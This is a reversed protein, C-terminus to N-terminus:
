GDPEEVVQTEAGISQRAALRRFLHGHTATMLLPTLTSRQLTFVLAATGLVLGAFLDGTTQTHLSGCAALASVIGVLAVGSSLLIAAPAARTGVGVCGTAFILVALILAHHALRIDSRAAAPTEGKPTGRSTATRLKKAAPQRDFDPDVASHVAGVLSTALVAGMLCALVPERLRPESTRHDVAQGEAGRRLLALTGCGAAALLLATLFAQQFCCIVTSTFLLAAFAVAARTERCDTVVILASALAALGALAFPAVAYWHDLLSPPWDDGSVLLAAVPLLATAVFTPGLWRLIEPSEARATLLLYLGGSGAIVGLFILSLPTAEHM